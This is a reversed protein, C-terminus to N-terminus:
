DNRRMEARLEDRFERGAEMDAEVADMAATIGDDTELWDRVLDDLSAQEMDAFAGYYPAPKGNAALPTAKVLEIEDPDAPQGGSYYSPGQEPAGKLYTFTVEVDVEAGLDAPGCPITARLKHKTSM